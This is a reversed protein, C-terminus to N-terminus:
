ALGIVHGVAVVPQELILLGGLGAVPIGIAGVWNEVRMCLDEGGCLGPLIAVLVPPAAILLLVVVIYERALRAFDVAFDM